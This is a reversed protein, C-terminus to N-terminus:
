FDEELDEDIYDIDDEAGPLAATAPKKKKDVSQYEEIRRFLAEKMDAPLVERIATLIM